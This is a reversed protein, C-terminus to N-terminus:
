ETYKKIIKDITGDRKMDDIAKNFRPLIHSKNQSITIALITDSLQLGRKFKKKDYGLQSITYHFAVSDMFIADCRKAILTKLLNAEINIENKKVLGQNFAHEFVPYYYERLINVDKGYLDAPSDVEIYSEKLFYIHEQISMVNNSFLMNKAIEPTNWLPSDLVIIDIENRDLMVQSRKIPLYQFSVTDGTRRIVETLIDVGIGTYQNNSVMFFPSWIDSAAKLDESHVTLPHFLISLLLILRLSKVREKIRCLFYRTIVYL